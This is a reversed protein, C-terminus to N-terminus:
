RVVWLHLASFNPTAGAGRKHESKFCDLNVDFVALPANCARAAPSMALKYYGALQGPVDQYTDLTYGLMMGFTVRPAYKGSVFRHLGNRVYEGCGSTPDVCKAEVFLASEDLDEGDASSNTRFTFDPMQDHSSRTGTTQKGDRVVIHFVKKKFEGGRNETLMNNLIEVLKTSLEDEDYLHSEEFPASKLYNFSSLEEWAERIAKAIVRLHRHGLTTPM